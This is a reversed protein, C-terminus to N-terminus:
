RDKFNSAVVIALAIILVNKIIYQGELTPVFPKIWVMGALLFLPMITTIMHIFLLAIAPRELGPIIFLIGILMEFLGFLIMFTPFSVIALFTRDFLTHVLPSAPSLGMVKLAGFWFYVLFIAFRAFPLNIRKCLNTFKNQFNSM